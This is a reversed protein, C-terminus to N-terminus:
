FGARLSDNPTNYMSAVQNWASWKVQYSEELFTYFIDLFSYPM